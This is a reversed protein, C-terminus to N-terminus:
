ENHPRLLRSDEIVLFRGLQNACCLCSYSLSPAYRQFCRCGLAEHRRELHTREYPPRMTEGDPTYASMHRIPLASCARVPHDQSEGSSSRESPAHLLRRSIVTESGEGGGQPGIAVVVSGGGRDDDSEEPRASLGLGTVSCASEEEERPARTLVGRREEERQRPTANQTALGSMM